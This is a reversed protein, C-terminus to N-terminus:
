LEAGPLRSGPWIRCRGIGGGNGDQISSVMQASATNSVFLRLRPGVWGVRWFRVGVGCLEAYHLDAGSRQGRVNRWAVSDPAAGTQGSLPWGPDHFVRVGP